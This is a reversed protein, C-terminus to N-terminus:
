KSSIKNQTIHLISVRVLGWPWPYGLNGGDEQRGRSKRLDKEMEDKWHTKPRGRPRRGYPNQKWVEKILRVDERRM